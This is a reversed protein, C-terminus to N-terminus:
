YHLEAPRPAESHLSPCVYQLSPSVFPSYRPQGINGKPPIATTGDRLWRITPTSRGRREPSLNSHSQEAELRCLWTM